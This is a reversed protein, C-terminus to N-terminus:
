AGKDLVSSINCYAERVAPPMRGESLQPLPPYVETIWLEIKGTRLMSLEVGIVYGKKLLAILEEMSRPEPGDNM